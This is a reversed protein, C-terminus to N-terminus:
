VRPLPIFKSFERRLVKAVLMLRFSLFRKNEHQGEALVSSKEPYVLLVKERVEEMKDSQSNTAYYRYLVVCINLWAERLREYVPRNDKFYEMLLERIRLAIKQRKEIGSDSWIGKDHIRYVSMVQPLYYINGYQANLLHIAYDYTTVESFWEPLEGFLGRRFLVSVNTIYNSSSLDLITTVRKQRGNSLSKSGDKEFTNLVRHFCMAFESHNELVNVQRQLKHKSLWYDDGECIAIYKGACANYTRIFNQQFGQNSDHELIHIMGPFDQQFKRCIDVTKDSSCDDGVVIEISFSTKQRLISRLAQAIYAEQNYTLVIVSVMPATKMNM